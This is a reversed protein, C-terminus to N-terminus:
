INPGTMRLHRINEREKHTLKEHSIEKGRMEKHLSLVKGKSICSSKNMCLDEIAQYLNGKINAFKKDESILIEYSIEKRLGKHIHLWSNKKMLELIQSLIKESNAKIELTLNVSDFSIYKDCGCPLEFM